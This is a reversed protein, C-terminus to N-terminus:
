TNNLEGYQNGENTALDILSGHAVPFFVPRWRSCLNFVKIFAAEVQFVDNEQKLPYCSRSAVQVSACRHLLCLMFMSSIVKSALEIPETCYLRLGLLSHNSFHGSCWVSGELTSLTSSFDVKQVWVLRLDACM